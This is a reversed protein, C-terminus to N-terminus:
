QRFAAILRQGEPGAKQLWERLLQDGIGRFERLMAESPPSVVVGNRALRQTGEEEAQRSLDWGRREAQRAVDLVAAQLDAPLSRFARENAGLANRPLMAKTDYVYRIYEWANADAAAATSTMMAGVINTAFAQPIEPLQVTVPTAGLLNAMRSTVPNASRLRVGRFDALSNLPQRSFLAQGPWPVSYLLRVGRRQLREQLFPRQVAYLREAQEYGVAVFPIGDIEFFPDENGFASLLIEGAPVQGSGVARLMDNTRILAGNTHLRMELRGGTARRVEEAFWRLNEAHFSADAVFTAVDWRSQALAPAAVAALGIGVLSRRPLRASPM